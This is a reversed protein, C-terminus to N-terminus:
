DSSGLRMVRFVLGSSTMQEQEIVAVSGGDADEISFCGQGSDVWRFEGTQQLEYLHQSEPLDFDASETPLSRFLCNGSRSGSAFLLFGLHRGSTTQVAFSM